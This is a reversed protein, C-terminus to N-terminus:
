ILCADMKCASEVAAIRATPIRTRLSVGEDKSHRSTGGGDAPTVSKRRPYPVRM